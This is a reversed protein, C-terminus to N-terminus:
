DYSIETKTICKHIAETENNGSKIKIHIWIYYCPLVCMCELQKGLAYGKPFLRIVIIGGIEM